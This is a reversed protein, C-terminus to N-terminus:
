YFILCFNWRACTGYGVIYWECCFHARNQVTCQAIHSLACHSKHSHDIVRIFYCQRSLKLWHCFRKPKSNRIFVPSLKCWRSIQVLWIGHVYIVDCPLSGFHTRHYRIERISVVNRLVYRTCEYMIPGKQPSDMSWRHIERAFPWHRLVKINLKRTLRFLKNFM